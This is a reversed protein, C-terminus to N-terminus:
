CGYKQSLNKQKYIKLVKKKEVSDVTLMFYTLKFIIEKM